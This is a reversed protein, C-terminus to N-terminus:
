AIVEYKKDWKGVNLNVYHGVHFYDSMPDSNNFNDINLASVIKSVIELAEGTFHDKFHYPNVQLYNGREVYDESRSPFNNRTTENYNAIFDIPGKRLTCVISSHNDVALSFKVGTNALAVDLAEKIKAKKEKSVYAM